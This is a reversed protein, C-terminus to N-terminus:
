QRQHTSLDRDMDLRGFAREVPDILGDQNRDLEQFHDHTLEPTHPDPVGAGLHSRRPDYRQPGELLGYYMLDTRPQVEAKPPIKKSVKVQRHGKRGTKKSETPTQKAQRQLVEPQQEPVTSVATKKATARTPKQALESSPKPSIAPVVSPAQEKFKKQAAFAQGVVAGLLAGTCACALITLGLRGKKM